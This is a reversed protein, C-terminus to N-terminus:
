YEEEMEEFFDEDAFGSSIFFNKVDDYDNYEEQHTIEGGEWVFSGAYVNGLEGFLLEFQLWPFIEAVKSVWAIPPSWATSFILSASGHNTLNIAPENVDWKTGWNQIQWSYGDQAAERGLISNISSTGEKSYGIELIDHPVPVLANFTFEHPQPILYDGKVQNPDTFQKDSESLRYAPGNGKCADLFASIDKDNGTIYLENDCWNPM